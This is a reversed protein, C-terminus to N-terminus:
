EDGKVVWSGLPVGLLGSVTPCKARLLFFIRERSGELTELHIRM